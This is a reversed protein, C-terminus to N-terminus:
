PSDPGASLYEIQACAQSGAHGTEQSAKLDTPLQYKCSGRRCGTAAFEEQTFRLAYRLHPHCVSTKVGGLSPDLLHNKSLLGVSQLDRLDASVNKCDVVLSISKTMFMVGSQPRGLLKTLTCAIHCLNMNQKAV